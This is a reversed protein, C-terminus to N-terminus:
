QIKSQHQPNILTQSQTNQNYIGQNQIISPNVGPYPQQQMQYNGQMGIQPNQNSNPKNLQQM